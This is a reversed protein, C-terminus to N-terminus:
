HDNRTGKTALPITLTSRIEGVTGSDTEISFPLTDCLREAFAHWDKDYGAASGTVGCSRVTVEATEIGPTISMALERNKPSAGLHSMLVAELLCEIAGRPAKVIHEWDGTEEIEVERRIRIREIATKVEDRLSNLRHSHAAGSQLLDMRQIHYQLEEAQNHIIGVLEELDTASLESHYSEIHGAAATIATLKNRMSHVFFDTFFRDPPIAPAEQRPPMVEVIALRFDQVSVNSMRVPRSAALEALRPAVCSYERDLADAFTPEVSKLGHENIFVVRGSARNVVLVPYGPNVRERLRRVATESSRLADRFRDVVQAFLAYSLEENDLRGPETMALTLESDGVMGVPASHMLCTDWEGSVGTDIQDTFIAGRPRSGNLECLREVLAPPASQALDREETILFLRYPSPVLVSLLDRESPTLSGRLLFGLLLSEVGAHSVGLTYRTAVRDFRGTGSVFSETPEIRFETSEM